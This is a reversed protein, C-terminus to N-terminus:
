VNKWQSFLDVDILWWLTKLYRTADWGVSSLYEEKKLNWTEMELKLTITSICDIKWFALKGVLKVIYHPSTQAWHVPKIQLGIHDIGDTKQHALGLALLADNPIIRWMKESKLFSFNVM